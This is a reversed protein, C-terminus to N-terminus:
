KEKRNRRRCCQGHGFNGAMDILNKSGCSPCNTFEAYFNINFMHGCDSCKIINGKFHINGGEITLIKGSIIFEAIKRRSKRILRTFTSRSIEMEIAAETHDMGLFDALRIAEFEDLSLCIKELRNAQFGLPKFGCYLPPQKVIRNKKPRPM